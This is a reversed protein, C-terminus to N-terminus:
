DFELESITAIFKRINNLAMFYNSYVEQLTINKAILAM